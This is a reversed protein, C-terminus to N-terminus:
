IYSIIQEFFDYVKTDSVKILIGNDLIISYPKRNSMEKVHIINVLYSKHCRFLYPTNLKMEVINLRCSVKIKKDNVLYIWTYSGSAECYLIKERDISSIHRNKIKSCIASYKENNYIDSNDM